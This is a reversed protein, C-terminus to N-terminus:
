SGLHKWLSYIMVPTVVSYCASWALTLQSLFTARAQRRSPPMTEALRVFGVYLMLIGWLGAIFPLALGLDVMWEKLTAPADFVMIGLAVAVYIPLIGVLAVATTAACKIAHTAVQLMSIKLGALLGYFYFSPLCVGVSAILGLDYALVLNVITRDTWRAAPVWSPWIGAVNLVVTAAIGYVTFGILAISLFRPILDFPRSEDRLLDHLRRSDKLMLEVLGIASTAQGAAPREEPSQPPVETLPELYDIVEM